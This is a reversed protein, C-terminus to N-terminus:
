PQESPLAFPYRYTLTIMDSEVKFTVLQEDGFGGRAQGSALWTDVDSIANRYAHQFARNDMFWYERLVTFDSHNALSFMQQDLTQSDLMQLGALVDLKEGMVNLLAFTYGDRRLGNLATNYNALTLPLQWQVDVVHQKDFHVVLLEADIGFLNQQDLCYTLREDFMASCDFALPLSAVTAETDGFAIDPTLAKAQAVGQTMLLALGSIVAFAMRGVGQRWVSQRRLM